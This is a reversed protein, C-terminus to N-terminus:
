FDFVGATCGPPRETANAAARPPYALSAFIPRSAPTSRASRNSPRHESLAFWVPSKKGRPGTEYESFPTFPAICCNAPGLWRRWHPLSM